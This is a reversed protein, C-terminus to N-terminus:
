CYEPYILQTFQVKFYYIIYIYIYIYEIYQYKEYM